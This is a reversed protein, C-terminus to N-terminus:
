LAERSYARFGCSVDFMRKGILYSVIQAMRHNGWIKMPPMQPILSPDKFRSATVFHASGDLIPQILKPIDNPNFQGDADINVAVDVGRRIAEDLGSHLAVGVGLNQGHSIVSAGAERSLQATRDTCGDDIVVVEVSSVGPIDRPITEIVGQITVEENLAPIMVLVRLGGQAASGTATADTGVFTDTM